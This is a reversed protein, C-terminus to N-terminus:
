STLKKALTILRVYVGTETRDVGVRVRVVRLFVKLIVVLAVVGGGSSKTPVRGVTSLFCPTRDSNFCFNRTGSGPANIEQRTHYPRVYVGRETREVGM